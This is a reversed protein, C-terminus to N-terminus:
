APGAVEWVDWVDIIHIAHPETLDLELDASM